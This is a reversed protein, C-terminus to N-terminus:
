KALAVNHSARQSHLFCHTDRGGTRYLINTRSVVKDRGATRHPIQTRGMLKKEESRASKEDDIEAQDGLVPGYASGFV